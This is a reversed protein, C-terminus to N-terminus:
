RRRRVSSDLITLLDVRLGLQLEQVCSFRGVKIVALLQSAFEGAKASKRTAGNARGGGKAPGNVEM